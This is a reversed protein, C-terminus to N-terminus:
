STVRLEEHRTQCEKVQQESISIGLGNGRIEPAVGGWGFTIDEESLSKKVLHRDYSGELYRINKISTAFHRGAASLIATEGVQCGLQYGINNATAYEALRIAPIFGGVKSLRINFLKCWNNEVALKADYMGCCSEDLMIPTQIEQQLKALLHAQEHPIPQEVASINFPELARIKAGANEATWSENADIRIDVSKGVRGRIMKLRYPDDHGEIGVKVKLQKVGFIRMRWSALRIKLGRRASTIAGSYRVLSRSEYLSPSLTKTMESLPVQFFKGCADLLALEVACRAANGAIGREDGTVTAMKVSEIMKLASALDDCQSLQSGLNSRTLHEIASSASEGTVYERPVGEGWGVIGNELTAKVVLNDTDSRTHSAHKVPKVLPIRVVFAELAVIKM